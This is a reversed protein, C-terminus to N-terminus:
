NLTITFSVSHQHQHSRATPKEVDGAACTSTPLDSGNTNPNSRTPQPLASTKRKRRSRAPSANTCPSHALPWSDTRNKEKEFHFTNHGILFDYEGQFAFLPPISIIEHLLFYTRLYLLVDCYYFSPCFFVFIIFLLFKFTTHLIRLLSLIIYHFLIRRAQQTTASSTRHIWAIAGPPARALHLIIYSFSSTIFIFLITFLTPGM